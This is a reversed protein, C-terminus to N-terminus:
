SGDGTAAVSRSSCGSGAKDVIPRLRQSATKIARELAEAIEPKSYAKEGKRIGTRWFSPLGCVKILTKGECYVFQILVKDGWCRWFLMDTLKTVARITITTNSAHDNIEQSGAKLIEERVGEVAREPPGNIVTDYIRARIIKM